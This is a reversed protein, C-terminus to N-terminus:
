MNKDGEITWKYYKDLGHYEVFEPNDDESNRLEYFGDYTPSITYIKRNNKM